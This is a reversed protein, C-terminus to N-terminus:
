TSHRKHTLVIVPIVRTTKAQYEAFQPYAAAQRSYLQDHDAGMAETATVEVTDTGVEITLDPHAKLNHYWAPNTPAGGKSAFVIYRDNDPLYMVPNIHEEGTQAGVSHLLLLPAGAFPGGVKGGNARFEAITQSNFDPVTTV